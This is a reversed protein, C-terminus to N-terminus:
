HIKHLKLLNLMAKHLNTLRHPNHRTLRHPRPPGSQPLSTDPITDIGCLSSHHKKHCMRCRNKSTCHASKHNGLCNFCLREKKAVDLRAKVDTVVNCQVSSHPGKCYTCIPKSSVMRNDGLQQRAQGRRVGTHFSGM